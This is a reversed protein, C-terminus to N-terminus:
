LSSDSVWQTGQLYQPRNDLTLSYQSALAELKVPDTARYLQSQLATQSTEESAIQSKLANVQYRANVLSNYEIVYFVGGVLLTMFLLAFFKVFTKHFNPKFITM